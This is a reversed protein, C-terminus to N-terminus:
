LRVNVGFLFLPSLVFLRQARGGGFESETDPTETLNNVDLYAEVHRTIKYASKFDITTSARLYSKRSDNVNYSNLYRGRHNVQV